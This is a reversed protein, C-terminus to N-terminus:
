YNNYLVAEAIDVFLGVEGWLAADRSPSPLLVSCKGSAVVAGGHPAESEVGDSSREEESTRRWSPAEALAEGVDCAWASPEESVVVGGWGDGRLPAAPPTAPVSLFLPPGEFPLEVAPNLAVGVADCNVTVFALVLATEVALPVTGGADATIVTGGCPWPREWEELWCSCIPCVPLMRPPTGGEAGEEARM